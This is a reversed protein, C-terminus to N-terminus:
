FISKITFTPECSIVSCWKLTLDQGEDINMQFFLDLSASLNQSVKTVRRARPSSALPLIDAALKKTVLQIFCPPWRSSETVTFSFRHCCTETRRIAASQALRWFATWGILSCFWLKLYPLKSLFDASINWKQVTVVTAAFGLVGWGALFSLLFFHKGAFVCVYVTLSLRRPQSRFAQWLFCRNVCYLCTWNLCFWLSFVEVCVRVVAPTVVLCEYCKQDWPYYM